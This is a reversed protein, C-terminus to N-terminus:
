HYCRRCTNIYFHTQCYHKDCEPCHNMESFMFGYAVVKWVNCGPYACYGIFGINQREFESIQDELVAIKAKLKDVEYASVIIKEALDSSFRQPLSMGKFKLFKTLSV